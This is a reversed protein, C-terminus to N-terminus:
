EIPCTEDNAWDSFSLYYVSVPEFGAELAAIAALAARGGGDCHTVLSDGPKFGARLILERLVNAPKLRSNRDILAGHSLLRAKPLHGGRPNNKLDAGEYEHSTRADWIFFKSLNDRLTQRQVLEAKRSAGAPKFRLAAPPVAPGSAIRSAYLSRLAPWGGNIIAAAAGFYQLIFWVRAAETLRGDDYILIPRTGDIGLAGIEALWLTSNEFGTEPAKAAAIWSEIPVRVAGSFRQAQYEEEGRADLIPAGSYGAIDDPEAVAGRRNHDDSM